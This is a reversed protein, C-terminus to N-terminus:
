LRKHRLTTKSSENWRPLKGLHRTINTQAHHHTAEVSEGYLLFHAKTLLPNTRVQGGPLHGSCSRMPSAVGTNDPVPILCSRFLLAQLTRIHSCGIAPHTHERSPTNVIFGSKVDPLNTHVLLPVMPAFNDKRLQYRRDHKLPIGSSCHVRIQHHAQGPRSTRRKPPDNHVCLRGQVSVLTFSHVQM